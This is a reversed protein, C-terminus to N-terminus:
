PELGFPWIVQLGPDVTRIREIDEQLLGWM